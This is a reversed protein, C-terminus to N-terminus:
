YFNYSGWLYVIGFVWIFFRLRIYIIVLNKIEVFVVLMFMVKCVEWMFSIVLMYMYYFIKM